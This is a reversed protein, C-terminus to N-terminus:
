KMTSLSIADMQDQLYNSDETHLLYFGGGGAGCLKMYYKGSSLGAKWISRVEDVIMDSFFDYQMQSILQIERRFNQGNLLKHIALDTIDILRELKMTLDGKSKMAQYIKVYEATSRSRGSNVLYLSNMQYTDIDPFEFHGNQVLVPKNLYSILPDFGSSKGHFYGEISAMITRIDELIKFNKDFYREYVAATFSGSSGVGYGEPINSEFMLGDEIDKRFAESKFSAKYIEPLDSMIYDHFDSLGEVKQDGHTWSGHYRDFPIALARGGELVTYEGFLLVKSPFHSPNM